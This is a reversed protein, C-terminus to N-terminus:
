SRQGARATTNQCINDSNLYKDLKLKFNDDILTPFIGLQGIRNALILQVSGSSAKKDRRMAALIGDSDFKRRAAFSYHKSILAHARAYAGRDLHGIEASVFNAVDVGWAVALGHPIENETVSELAHGFTHGYNLTKRLGREYEDEEIVTQKTKLSREIAERASTIDFGSRNLTEELWGFAEDGATIALKLVEGFGSRVDDPPLTGLFGPWLAVKTPSQFFGLQNKYSGLNVGCKAGICSDSMSLLTTPVYVYPIGRYYIHATFTGIDQIIGGGIVILTSSRSAGGQQVFSAVREVGSLTKNDENAAIAFIRTSDVNKLLDPYLRWVAEDVVVFSDKIASLSAALSPSDDFFQVDYDGQGSRIRLNSSLARADVSM